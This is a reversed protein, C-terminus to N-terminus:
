KPCCHHQMDGFTDQPGLLALMPMYFGARVIMAPVRPLICGLHWCHDRSKCLAITISSAITFQMGLWRTLNGVSENLRLLAPM